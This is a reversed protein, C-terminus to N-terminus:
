WQAVVAEPKWRAVSTSWRCARISSLRTRRSGEGEFAGPRPLAQGFPQPLSGREKRSKGAFTLLRGTMRRANDADSMMAGPGIDREPRGRGVRNPARRWSGTGGAKARRDAAGTVGASDGAAGEASPQRVARHEHNPAVTM